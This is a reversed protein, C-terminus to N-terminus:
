VIYLISFLKIPIGFIHSNNEKNKDAKDRLIKFRLQLQIIRIGAKSQLKSTNIKLLDTNYVFKFYENEVFKAIPYKFFFL